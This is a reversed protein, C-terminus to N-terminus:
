VGELELGELVEEAGDSGVLKEFFPNDGEDVPRVTVVPVPVTRGGDVSVMWSNRFFDVTLEFGQEFEHFLIPPVLLRPAPIEKDLTIFAEPMPADCWCAAFNLPPPPDRSVDQLIHIKDGVVQINDDNLLVESGLMIIPACRIKGLTYNCCKDYIEMVDKSKWPNFLPYTHMLCCPNELDTEKLHDLDYEYEDLLGVFPGDPAKKPLSDLDAKQLRRFSTAKDPPQKALYTWVDASSTFHEKVTTSKSLARFPQTGVKCNFYDLVATAAYDKISMNERKPFWYNYGNTMFDLGQFKKLLLISSSSDRNLSWHLSNAREFCTHAYAALEKDLLSQGTMYCATSFLQSIKEDHRLTADKFILETRFFIKNGEVFPRGEHEYKQDFVICTMEEVTNVDVDQVRLLPENRGASLYVLMTYKSVHNRARDYYPTDL